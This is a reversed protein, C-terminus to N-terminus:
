LVIHRAEGLTNEWESGLGAFECISTLYQEELIRCEKVGAIAEQLVKKESEKM